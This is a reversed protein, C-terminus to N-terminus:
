TNERQQWFTTQYKKNRYKTNELVQKNGMQISKSIEFLFEVNPLCDNVLVIVFAM